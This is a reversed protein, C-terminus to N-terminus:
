FIVIKRSFFMSFDDNFYRDAMGFLQKQRPTM